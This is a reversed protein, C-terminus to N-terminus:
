RVSYHHLPDCPAVCLLVARTECCTDPQAPSQKILRAQSPLSSASGSAPQESSPRTRKWQDAAGNYGRAVQCRMANQPVKSHASGLWSAHKLIVFYVLLGRHSNIATFIGSPSSSFWKKLCWRPQDQILLFGRHTDRHWAWLAKRPQSPSHGEAPLTPVPLLFATATGAAERAPPSLMAGTRATPHLKHSVPTPLVQLMTKKGNRALSFLEKCYM